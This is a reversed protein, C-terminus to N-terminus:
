VLAQCHLEAVFLYNTLNLITIMTIAKNATIIMFQRRLLFSHIVGVKAMSYQRQPRIIFICREDRLSLYHPEYLGIYYLVVYNSPM